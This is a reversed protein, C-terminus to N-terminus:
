IENQPSLEIEIIREGPNLHARYARGCADPFRRGVRKCAVSRSNGKKGGPKQITFAGQYSDDKVPVKLGILRKEEDVMVMLSNAGAIFAQLFMDNLTIRDKHVAVCPYKKWGIGYNGGGQPRKEVTEWAM